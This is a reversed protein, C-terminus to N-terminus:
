IARCHRHNTRTHSGRARHIHTHPQLVYLVCVCLSLSLSPSLSLSRSLCLSLSLSLSLSLCLAGARLVSASSELAGQLRERELVEENLKERLARLSKEHALATQAREERQTQVLQRATELEASVQTLQARQGGAEEVDCEMRMMAEKCREKEKRLDEVVQNLAAVEGRLTRAEGEAASQKLQAEDILMQLRKENSARDQCM